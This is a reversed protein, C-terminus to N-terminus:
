AASRVRPAEDLLHGVLTNQYMGKDPLACWTEAAGGHDGRETGAARIEEGFGAQGVGPDDTPGETTLVGGHAYRM